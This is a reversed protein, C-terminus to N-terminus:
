SSFFHWYGFGNSNKSWTSIKSMWLNEPNQFDIYSTELFLKDNSNSPSPFLHGTKKSGNKYTNYFVSM